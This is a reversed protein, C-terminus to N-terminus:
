IVGENRVCENLCDFLSLTGARIGNKIAETILYADKSSHSVGLHKSTNSWHAFHRMKLDASCDTPKATVMWLARIRSVSRHTGAPYSM